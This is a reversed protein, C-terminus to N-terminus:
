HVQPGGIRGGTNIVTKCYIANKEGEVCPLQCHLATQGRLGGLLPPM